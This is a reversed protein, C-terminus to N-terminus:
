QLQWSMKVLLRAAEPKGDLTGPKWKCHSFASRAAQDLDRHGSSTAIRSDGVTGDTNILLEVVTTGTDGAFRSSSPYQPPACPHSPDRTPAVRMSSPKASTVVAASPATANATQMPTQATQPAPQQTAGNTQANSRPAPAATAATQAPTQNTGATPQQAPANAKAVPMPAATQASARVAETAPTRNEPAQQAQTQEQHSAKEQENAAARERQARERERAQEAAARERARAAAVEDRNLGAAIQDLGNNNPTSPSAQEVPAPAAAPAQLPAEAPPRKAVTTAAAPAAPAASDKHRTALVIVVVAVLLAAGAAAAIRLPPSKNPRFDPAPGPLVAEAVPARAAPPPTDRAIPPATTAPAPTAPAAAPAPAATVPAAPPHAVPAPAASKTAAPVPVRGALAERWEAASKPRQEADLRLGWDVAKLFEAPFRGYGTKLAPALTTEGRSLRQSDPPAAGGIARYITAALSYLDTVAGPHAAASFVEPPAYGPVIVTYISRFKFRMVFRAAGFDVLWPAGASDILIHEPRIDWHLLGAAHIQALAELLQDVLPILVNSPLTQERELRAALTEGSLPTTAYYATGNAEFVHLIQLVRSQRLSQLGAAQDAFGRLGWHVTRRVDESRPRLENGERVVFEAPAFERLLVETNSITDRARYLLSFHDSHEDLQEIRYRDLVTGVPLPAVPTEASDAIM